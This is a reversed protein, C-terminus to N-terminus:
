YTANRIYDHLNFPTWWTRVCQIKDFEVDKSTAARLLDSTDMAGNRAELEACMGKWNWGMRVRRPLYAAVLEIKNFDLNYMKLTSWIMYIITDSADHDKTPWFRLFIEHSKYFTTIATYKKGEGSDFYRIGLEKIDANNILKSKIISITENYLRIQLRAGRTRPSM